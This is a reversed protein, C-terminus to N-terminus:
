HLEQHFQMVQLSAVPSSWYVYDQQRVNATRKYTINGINPTSNVQILSSGNDFTAIGGVEVNLNETITLTNNTNVLLDGNPRVIVYKAFANYFAGIIRSDNPGDYIIVCTNADPV